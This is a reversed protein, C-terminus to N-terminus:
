LIQGIKCNRQFIKLKQNIIFKVKKVAAENGILFISYYPSNEEKIKTLYQISSTVDKTFNKDISLIFQYRNISLSSNNGQYFNSKGHAWLNPDGSSSIPEISIPKDTASSKSLWNENITSEYQSGWFDSLGYYLNEKRLFAILNKSRPYSSQWTQRVEEFLMQRPLKNSTLLAVFIGSSLALFHAPQLTKQHQGGWGAFALLDHAVETLFTLEMCIITPIALVLPLIYRVPLAGADGLLITYMIPSLSSAGAYILGAAHLDLSLDVIGNNITQWYSIFIFLGISMVVLYTLLFGNRNL